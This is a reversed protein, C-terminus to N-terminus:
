LCERKGRKFLFMNCTPRFQINPIAIAIAIAIAVAIAISIANAINQRFVAQYRIKWYQKLCFLSCNQTSPM